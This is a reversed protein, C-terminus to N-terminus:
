EFADILKMKSLQAQMGWNPDNKVEALWLTFKIDSQIDGWVRVWGSNSDEDAVKLRMFPKGNKTKKKIVDLICFWGIGKENAKISFISEIGKSKVKKLFADPFLLDSTADNSLEMFNQVKESRQWDEVNNVYPLLSNILLEPEEGGKIMKKYQSKTM